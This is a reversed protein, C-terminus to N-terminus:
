CQARRAVLQDYYDQLVLKSPPELYMLLEILRVAEADSAARETLDELSPKQGRMAMDDLRIYIEQLEAIRETIGRVSPPMTIKQILM